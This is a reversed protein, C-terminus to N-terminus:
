CIPKKMSLVVSAKREIIFFFMISSVFMEFKALENDSPAWKSINGLSYLGFLFLSDTKFLSRIRIYVLYELSFAIQMVVNKRKERESCAISLRLVSVIHNVKHLPNERSQLM